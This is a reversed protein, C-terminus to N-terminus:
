PQSRGEPVSLDLLEPQAQDKFDLSFVQDKLETAVVIKRSDPLARELCNLFGFLTFFRHYERFAQQQQSFVDVFARAAVVKGHRYATATSLLQQYEAEVAPLTKQRYREAELKRALQEQQEALVQHFAPVIGTPPQLRTVGVSVIKIGLELREVRDQLQRTLDGALRERDEQLLTLGDHSAFYALTERRSLAQLLEIAQAHQYEFKRIDDLTYLVVIKAAMLSAAPVSADGNPSPVGTPQSEATSAVLFLTSNQSLGDWLGPITKSDADLSEPTEPLGVTFQRIRDAKFRRVSEIPWPLKLHAGPPLDEKAPNGWHEVIAREGPNVFVVCSLLLLIAIQLALLPLIARNLLRVFWTDSVQFGFQYNLMEGLNGMLSGPQALLLILRSEYAPSPAAGTRPRYLALVMNVLFELILVASGAILIWALYLDARGLLASEVSQLFNLALHLLGLLLLLIATLLANGAPARLFRYRPSGGFALGGAYKGILFFVFAGALLLPGTARAFVTQPFDLRLLSVLHYFVAGGVLLSLLTGGPIFYREVQTLAKQREPVLDGEQFLQTGSPTNGELSAKEEDALRSMLAYAAAMFAFVGAGANITALAWASGSQLRGGVLYLAIAAIVHLLGILAAIRESHKSSGM